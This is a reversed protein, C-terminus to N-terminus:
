RIDKTIVMKEREQLKANLDIIQQSNEGKRRHLETLEEQQVLLKQELHQVREHLRADGGGGTNNSAFDAGSKLREVQISLQLTESRLTNVNEFVKNDPFIPFTETLNHTIRKLRNPKRQAILDQFCHTQLRNRIQLQKLINDRWKTDAAVAM